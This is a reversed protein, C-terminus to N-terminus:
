GRTTLTPYSDWLLYMHFYNMLRQRHLFQFVHLLSWMEQLAFLDALRVDGLEDGYYSDDRGQETRGERPAPGYALAM